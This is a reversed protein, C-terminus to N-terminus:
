QKKKMMKLIPKVRPLFYWVGIPLAVAALLYRVYPPMHYTGMTIVCVAFYSCSILLTKSLPILQEGTLRKEMFAQIVMLAMYSFATTYAAAQYGFWLIGLYNLIVNLFMVSVTSAAVSATKKHYNQIATYSYSYFRFLTGTM